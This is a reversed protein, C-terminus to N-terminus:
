PKIVAKMTEFAGAKKLAIEADELSYRHSILQEFPLDSQAMLALDPGYQHPSIGFQNLILSDKHCFHSFPNVTVSGADTYHGVEVFTGGRRVLMLGEPFASPVGACEIVIDPGRGWTLERVHSLREDVNLEDINVTEDVGFTGALELRHAPAGTMIVFPVGRAKARFAAMMGVPGAGQVLVSEVTPTLQLARELARGSSLADVLIAEDDGLSEPVKYLWTGPRAYLYEAYGGVFHPPEASSMGGGYGLRNECLSAHELVHYRCYYCHGCLISSPWIVRDGPALTEGYVSEPPPDGLSEIVGLTEHGIIVPYPLNARGNYLHPDTGCVGATQVRILAASAEIEEPLPYERIKIDQPGELVAAKATRM